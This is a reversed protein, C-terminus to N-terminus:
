TDEHVNPLEVKQQVHATESNKTEITYTRFSKKLGKVDRSFPGEGDSIWTEEGSGM